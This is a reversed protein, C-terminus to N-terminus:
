WDGVFTNTKLLDFSTSVSGQTASAIRGVQGNPQQSLTLLHCTALDLLRERTYIKNDPDYPAFSDADTNGVFEVAVDFYFQLTEDPFKVEDSFAPHLIRFKEPDFVVVAM